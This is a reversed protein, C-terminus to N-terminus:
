IQPSDLLVEVEKPPDSYKKGWIFLYFMVNWGQNCIDLLSFILNVLFNAFFDLLCMEVVINAFYDPEVFTNPEVFNTINLLNQRGGFFNCEFSTQSLINKAPFVVKSM